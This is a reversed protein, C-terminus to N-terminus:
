SILQATVVLREQHTGKSRSYAGTCTIVNLLVADSPGFIEELPADDYPYKAKSIVKFTLKKKDQDTLIIKDGKSLKGLKYFVAPGTKSDVHGALVAHGPTGPRYGPSFWAVDNDNKPVDMAGDKTLGLSIVDAEIGLTPIDIKHPIIGGAGVAPAKAAKTKKGKTVNNDVQSANESVSDSVITSDATVAPSATSTSAALKVPEKKSGCGSLLLCLILLLYVPVKLFSLLSLRLAKERNFLIRM